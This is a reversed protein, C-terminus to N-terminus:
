LGKKSPSERGFHDILPSATWFENNQYALVFKEYYVNIDAEDRETLINAM